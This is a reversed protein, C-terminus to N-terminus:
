RATSFRYVTESTYRQGPQLISDPFDPRNPSDPFHQTEMAVGANASFRCGASLSPKGMHNGTYLQLGPETSHMEVVRGSATHHLRAVFKRRADRGSIIFNHDYGRAVQLQEDATGIFQGIVRAQRFDFATGAVDRLEGTPILGANVPSFQSANITLDHDLISSESNGSLNFYSHQTLNVPTAQDCEASYSVVFEDEDNLAYRVTARLTGPYGEDGDPSVLTLEAGRVGAQEFLTMNWERSNFGSAGGHLHNEGDNRSLHYQKDGIAFAANAIRNAYRGILAGLYMTDEAYEAPTDYGVVIDAFQGDRDPTRIQLIIGGYNMFRVVIGNANTASVVRANARGDGMFATAETVRAFRTSVQTMDDASRSGGRANRLQITGHRAFHAAM